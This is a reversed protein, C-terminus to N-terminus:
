ARAVVVSRPTAFRDLRARLEVLGKEILGKEVLSEGVVAGLGPRGRFNCRALRM